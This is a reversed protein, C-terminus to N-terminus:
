NEPNESAALDHQTAPKPPPKRHYLAIATRMSHLKESLDIIRDYLPRRMSDLEETLDLFHHYFLFFLALWGLSVPESDFCEPIIVGLGLVAICSAYHKWGYVSANFGELPDDQVRWLGGYSSFQDGTHLKDLPVAEIVVAKAGKREYHERYCQCKCSFHKLCHCAVIGVWLAPSPWDFSFKQESRVLFVSILIAGGVIGLVAYIRKKTM